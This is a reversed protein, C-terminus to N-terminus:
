IDELPENFPELFPNSAAEAGITTPGGHGPIVITESPLPILRELISRILTEYDGGALDSRGITGRFLTDGAILIGGAEDYYCVGGASHGPTEIVRFALDTGFALRDGDAIDTVPFETDLNIMGIKAGETVAIANLFPKEAPHMYVPIDYQRQLIGASCIHDPHSHTLLIAEPILGKGSLFETLAAREEEDQCGPDTIVCKGDEGWLVTCATRLVNFYFIKYNTM